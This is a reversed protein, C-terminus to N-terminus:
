LHKCTHPDMIVLLMNGYYNAVQPLFVCFYLSRRPQRLLLGFHLQCWLATLRLLPLATFLSPSLSRSLTSHRQCLPSCRSPQHFCWQVVLHCIYPLMVAILHLYVGAYFICVCVCYLPLQACLPARQSLHTTTGVKWQSFHALTTDTICMCYMCYLWSTNWM